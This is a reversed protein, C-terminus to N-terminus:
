KSGKVHRFTPALLQTFQTTDLEFLFPFVSHRETNTPLRFSLVWTSAGAKRILKLLRTLLLLLTAGSYRDHRIRQLSKVNGSRMIMFCMGWVFVVSWVLTVSFKKKKKELTKM